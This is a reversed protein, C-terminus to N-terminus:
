TWQLTGVNMAGRERRSIKRIDDRARFFADIVEPDWQVGSGNQMIQNLLKDEMGVRYPRDSSMADYADAVACIRALLPIRQEKLGHPYGEGNWQEHHYLVM